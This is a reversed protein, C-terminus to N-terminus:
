IYSKMCLIVCKEYVDCRYVIKEYVIVYLQDCVWYSTWLFNLNNMVVIFDDMYM